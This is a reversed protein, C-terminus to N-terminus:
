PQGEPRDLPLEVTRYAITPLRAWWPDEGPALPVVAPRTPTRGPVHSPVPDLDEAPDSMM